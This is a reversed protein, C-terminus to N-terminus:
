ASHQLIPAAPEIVDQVAAPFVGLAQAVPELVADEERDERVQRLAEQHVALLAEALVLLRGLFFQGVDELRGQGQKVPQEEQEVGLAPVQQRDAFRRVVGGAQLLDLLLDGVLGADGLAVHGLAQAFGVGGLVRREVVPEALQELRHVLAVRDQVHRGVVAAQEVRRRVLRLPPVLADGAEEQLVLDRVAVQGQGDVPEGPVLVLPRQGEDEDVVLRQFHPM